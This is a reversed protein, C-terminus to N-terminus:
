TSTSLETCVNLISLYNTMLCQAIIYYCGTFPLLLVGEKSVSMCLLVRNLRNMPLYDEEEEEEEEEGKGV